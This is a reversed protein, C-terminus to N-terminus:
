PRGTPRSILLMSGVGAALIPLVWSVPAVAIAVIGGLAIGMVVKATM